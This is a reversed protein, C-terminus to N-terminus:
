IGSSRSQARPPPFPAGEGGGRGPKAFVQRPIQAGARSPIWTPPQGPSTLASVIDRVQLHLHAQPSWRWDRM